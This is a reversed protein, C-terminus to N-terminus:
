PGSTRPPPWRAEAVDPPCWPWTVMVATRSPVHVSYYWGSETGAREAIGDIRAAFHHEGNADMWRHAAAAVDSPAGRAAFLIAGPERTSSPGTRGISLTVTESSGEDPHQADSM